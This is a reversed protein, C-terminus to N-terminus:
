KRKDRRRSIVDHAVHNLAMTFGDVVLYQELEEFSIWRYEGGVALSENNLTRLYVEVVKELKMPENYSETVYQYTGVFNPQVGAYPLESRFSRIANERKRAKLIPITFCLKGKFRKTRVREMLVMNTKTIVLDMGTVVGLRRMVDSKEDGVYHWIDNAPKSVFQLSM